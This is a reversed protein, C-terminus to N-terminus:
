DAPEPDPQGFVIEAGDFSQADIPLSPPVPMGYRDVTYSQTNTFAPNPTAPPTSSSPTPTQVDAHATARPEDAAPTPTPALPTSPPPATAPITATHGTVQEARQILEALWMGAEEVRTTLSRMAGDILAKMQASQNGLKEGAQKALVLSTGIAERLIAQETQLQDLRTSAMELDDALTPSVRAIKEAANAIPGVLKERRAELIDLQAAAELLWSGFQSRVDEAQSKLDDVQRIVRDAGALSRESREVLDELKTLVSSSPDQDDLSLGLRELVADCAHQLPAIREAIKGAKEDAHRWARALADDIQGSAEAARRLAPELDNLAIQAANTVRVEHETSILEAREALQDLRAELDTLRQEIANGARELRAAQESARETMAALKQEIEAAAQRARREAELTIAGVRSEAREISGKVLPELADRIANESPLADRATEIIREAREAREDILKIIRTGADLRARLSEGAKECKATMADADAAFDQLDRAGQRADAILSKLVEAYRAFAGADLVRPSLFMEEATPLDAHPRAELITEQRTLRLPETRTTSRTDPM